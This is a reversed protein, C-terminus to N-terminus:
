STLSSLIKQQIERANVHPKCKKNVKGPISSLNANIILQCQRSIFSQFAVIEASRGGSFGQPPRVGKVTASIKCLRGLPHMSVNGIGNRRTLPLGKAAITKM